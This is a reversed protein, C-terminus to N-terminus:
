IGNGFYPQAQVASIAALLLFAFSIPNLKM